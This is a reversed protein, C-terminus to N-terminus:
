AHTRHYPSLRRMAQKQLQARAHAERMAALQLATWQQARRVLKREVIVRSIVLQLLLCHELWIHTTLPGGPERYLRLLSAM